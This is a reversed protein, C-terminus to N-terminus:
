GWTAQAFIDATLKLLTSYELIEKQSEEFTGTETGKEYVHGFGFTHFSRKM